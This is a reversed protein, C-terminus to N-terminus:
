SQEVAPLPTPPQAPTEDSELRSLAEVNALCMAYAADRRRADTIADIALAIGWAKPSLNSPPIRVGEPIPLAMGSAAAIAIIQDFSAQHTGKEWHSVNAKGVHVIDGLESQTKGMAQRAAKIWENLKM